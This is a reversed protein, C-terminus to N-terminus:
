IYKEVESFTYFIQNLASLCFPQVTGNHVLNVEQLDKVFSVCPAGFNGDIILHQVGVGEELLERLRRKQRPNIGGGGCFPVLANKIAHFLSIQVDEGNIKITEQLEEPAEKSLDLTYPNPEIGIFKLTFCLTSTEQFCLKTSKTWVFVKSNDLGLILGKIRRFEHCYQALRENKLSFFDGAEKSGHNFAYAIPCFGYISCVEQLRNIDQGDKFSFQVVDLADSASDPIQVSFAYEPGDMVGLLSMEQAYSLYRGLPNPTESQAEISKLLAARFPHKYIGKGGSLAIVGVTDEVEKNLPSCLPKIIASFSGDLPLPCPVGNSVVDQMMEYNVAYSIMDYQYITEKVLRLAHRILFYGLDSKQQTSIGDKWYLLSPEGQTRFIAGPEVLSLNDRVLTGGLMKFNEIGVDETVMGLEQLRKQHEQLQEIVTDTQDTHESLYQKVPIGRETSYGVCSLPSAAMQEMVQNIGEDVDIEYVKSKRADYLLVSCCRACLPRGEDKSQVFLTDGLKKALIGEREEFSDSLFQGFTWYCREGKEFPSFGLTDVDTFAVEGGAETYALSTEFRGRSGRSSLVGLSLSEVVLLPVLSAMVFPAAIGLVVVAKDRNRLGGLGMRSASGGPRQLSHLIRTFSGEEARSVLPASAGEQISTNHPELSM